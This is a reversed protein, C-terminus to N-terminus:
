KNANGREAAGATVQLTFIEETVSHWADRLQRHRREGMPMAVPSNKGPSVPSIYFDSGTKRSGKGAASRAACKTGQM